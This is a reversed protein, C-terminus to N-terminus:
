ALVHVSAGTRRAQLYARRGQHDHSVGHYILEKM